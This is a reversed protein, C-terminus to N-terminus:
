SIAELILKVIRISVREALFLRLVTLLLDVLVMDPILDDLLRRNAEVRAKDSRLTFEDLLRRLSKMTMLRPFSQKMVELLHTALVETPTVTTIGGIAARDQAERAIWRAPAGYVPEKVDDGSPMDHAGDTVLALIREP